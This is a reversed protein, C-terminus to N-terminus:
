LTLTRKGTALRVLLANFLLPSFPLETMARAFAHAALEVLTSATRSESHHDLLHFLEHAIVVEVIKEESFWRRETEDAWQAMLEALSKTADSNVRIVAGGDKHHLLCEGLFVIKGDAVQWAEHVMRCGYGIVIDEVSKSGNRLRLRNALWRGNHCAEAIDAENLSSHSKFVIEDADGYFKLLETLSTFDQTSTFKM